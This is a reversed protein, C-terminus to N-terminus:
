MMALVTHWAYDTIYKAEPLLCFHLNTAHFQRLDRWTASMQCKVTRLWILFCFCVSAFCEPQRRTRFTLHRPNMVNRTTSTINQLHCAFNENRLYYNIQKAYNFLIYPKILALAHNRMVKPSLPSTKTMPTTFRISSNNAIQFSQSISDALVTSAKRFEM